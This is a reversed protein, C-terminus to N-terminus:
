RDISVIEKYLVYIGGRRDCEEGMMNNVLSEDM